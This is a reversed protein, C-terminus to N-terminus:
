MPVNGKANFGLLSNVAMTGGSMVNNLMPGWLGMAYPYTGVGVGSHNAHNWKFLAKADKYEALLDGRWGKIQNARDFTLQLGSDSTSFSIDTELIGMALLCRILTGLKVLEIM